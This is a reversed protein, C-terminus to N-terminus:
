ADDGEYKGVLFSCGGDERSLSAIAHDGNEEGSFDDELGGAEDELERECEEIPLEEDFFPLSPEHQGTSEEIAGGAHNADAQSCELATKRGVEHVLVYRALTNLQLGEGRQHIDV